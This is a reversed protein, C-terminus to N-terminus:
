TSLTDPDPNPVTKAASEEADAVAQAAELREELDGSENAEELNVRADEVRDAVPVPTPVPNNCVPCFYDASDISLGEKVVKTETGEEYWCGRQACQRM